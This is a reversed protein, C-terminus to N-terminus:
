AGRKQREVIEELEELRGMLDEQERLRLEVAVARLQTNALQGCVAADARNTTGKLVGTILSIILRKVDALERNPKSKGGRSAARKRKEANAPDHMFCLTRQGSVVAECRGGARKIGACQPM